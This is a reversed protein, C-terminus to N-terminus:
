FRFKIIGMLGRRLCFYFFIEKRELAENLRLLFGKCTFIENLLMRTVLM